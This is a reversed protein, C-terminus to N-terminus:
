CVSSIGIRSCIAGSHFIMFPAIYFTQLYYTFFEFNKRLRSLGNSVKLKIIYTWSIIIIIIIKNNNNKQLWSQTSKQKVSKWKSYGHFWVLNNLFCQFSIKLLFALFVKLCINLLKWCHKFGGVNNKEAITAITAAQCLFQFEVQV